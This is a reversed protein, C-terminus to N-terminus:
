EQPTFFREGGHYGSFDVKRRGVTM